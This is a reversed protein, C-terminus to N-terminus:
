IMCSAGKTNLVQRVSLEALRDMMTEMGGDEFYNCIYELPSFKEWLQVNNKRCIYMSGKSSINKSELYKCSGCSDASGRVHEKFGAYMLIKDGDPQFQSCSHNRKVKRNQITCIYTTVGFLRKKINIFKCLDCYKKENSM